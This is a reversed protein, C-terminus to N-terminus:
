AAAEVFGTGAPIPLCQVEPAVAYEAYGGDFLLACVGDGVRGRGGDAGCAAVVGACELGPVTSATPPMPYTGHRQMVDARNVGAAHVEILVEHARPTPIPREALVLAELAGTAAPIDIVRMTPM